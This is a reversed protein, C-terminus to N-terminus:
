FDEGVGCNLLMLEKANLKPSICFCSELEPEQREYSLYSSPTINYTQSSTQKLINYLWLPLSQCANDGAWGTYM